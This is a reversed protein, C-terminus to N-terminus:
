LAISIIRYIFKVSLVDKEYRKDYIISIQLSYLPPPTEPLMDFIKKGHWSPASLTLPLFPLFMQLSSFNQARRESFPPHLSHESPLPVLPRPSAKAGGGRRDAWGRMAMGEFACWIWYIFLGQSQMSCSGLQKRCQYTVKIVMCVHM